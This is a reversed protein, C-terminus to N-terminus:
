PRQSSLTPLQGFHSSELIHSQGGGANELIIASTDPRADVLLLGKEAGLVSVATAYSDAIMGRSSVVTVTLSKQLGIGSTPDIIHSYQKGGSNIHQEGPGSTSVAANHLLLVRTFPADPRDLSDLGVKWGAQGPPPNSFALDGSAAVLASAMGHDSLVRLAEDAADGKAIAGADLQMGAEDVLVTQKEKDVHLKRFGCKARAAAVTQKDPIQNTKRADRWLHTL